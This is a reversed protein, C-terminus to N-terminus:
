SWAFEAWVVLADGPEVSAAGGINFADPPGSQPEVCVAPERETFVVAYEASSTITLAPGGPWRVVPPRRLDTFCDDWPGGEDLAPAPVRDGTPLGDGGRPLLTAADLEISADAAGTELRRRWWPHWGCTVPMRREGAHVELEVRLRREDLDIRHRAWGGLPWREGLDIRWAGAGDDDWPRDHVTGHIANPPNAIPLQYSRGHFTFRGDRVRGAYPAMPFMGHGTASDSYHALLEQGDVTFSGLRCGDAPDVTVTAPGAEFRPV